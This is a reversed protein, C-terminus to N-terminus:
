FPSAGELQKEEKIKQSLPWRGRKIHKNPKTKTKKKSNRLSVQKFMHAPLHVHFCGRWVVHPKTPREQKREPALTPGLWQEFFPKFGKKTSWSGSISFDGFLLLFWSTLLEAKPGISGKTEVVM